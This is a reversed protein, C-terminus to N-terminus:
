HFCASRLSLLLVVNQMWKCFIEDRGGSSWVRHYAIVRQAWEEAHTVHCRVVGCISCQWLRVSM